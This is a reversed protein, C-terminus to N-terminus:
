AVVGLAVPDLGELALRGVPRTPLAPPLEQYALVAARPQVRYALRWLHARLDAPALLVPPPDGELERGLADLLRAQHGPSLALAPGDPTEVRAERVLDEVLPDLLVVPLVGDRVHPHVLHAALGRRARAVLRAVAGEGEAAGEPLTALAELPRELWRLSVGEEVLHRLVECLLPAPVRRTVERVVAPSRAELRDLLAQTVQLSVLEHLHAVLATGVVEAAAEAPARVPLGAAEAAAVGAPDLGLARRDGLAVPTGALGLLTAEEPDLDAVPGKPLTGAAVPLENVLLRFGSGGVAGPRLRFGPIPVGHVEALHARLAPLRAGVLAELTEPAVEHGLELVLAAPGPAEGEGSADADAEPAAADEDPGPAAAPPHRHRWLAASAAATALLAFPPLPLGPVLGLVALLVAVVALPRPQAFLQAVVDGALGGDGGQVRTVLLGASIATLLAPVQSVLGDGISLLTYTSLAHAVTMGQLVPGAVLGGLVNVSTIVLGAIADGKVFKMAGDLAGYFQSERELARRRARGEVQSCAGARIDADISLQKGPLADLTFRAAVEAVREAGKAVVLFQIVTLILFVVAGVLYSGQVVFRGFATIVEGATATGLILRTSSVNLALRFLTAILVLTPFSSLALPTEAFLATVLLTLTLAINAVLLVDLLWPPLPVLLTAVIAVVFGALLLDPHRGLAALRSM